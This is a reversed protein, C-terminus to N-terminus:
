IMELLSVVNFLQTRTYPQMNHDDAIEELLNLAKNIKIQPESQEKLTSITDAIGSKVNKPVGQENQMEDLAEIISEFVEM